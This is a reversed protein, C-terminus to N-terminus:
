VPLHKKYGKGAVGLPVASNGDFVTFAPKHVATVRVKVVVRQLTPAYRKGHGQKLAPDGRVPGRLTGVTRAQGLKRPILIARHHDEIRM